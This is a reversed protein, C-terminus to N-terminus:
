YLVISGNMAGFSRLHKTLSRTDISSISILSNRKLYQEWLITQRWSYSQSSTNKTIIGKVSINYSEIDESNIGTNGIQPYTFMMIQGSYSPDTMVEQYGTMGTNFVVEGISTDIVDNSWGKYYTGDALVLLAPILKM